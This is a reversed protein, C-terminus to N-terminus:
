VSIMDHALAARVGAAASQAREDGEKRAWAEAEDVLLRLEALIEGPPAGSRELADIRELREVVARSEDM